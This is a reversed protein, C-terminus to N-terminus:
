IARQRMSWKTAADYSHEVGFRNLFEDVVSLSTGVQLTNRIESELARPTFNSLTRDTVGIGHDGRRVFLWWLCAAAVLLAVVFVFRLRM